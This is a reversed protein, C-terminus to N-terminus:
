SSIIVLTTHPKQFSTIPKGDQTELLGFFYKLYGCGSSISGWMAPHVVPHQPFGFTPRIDWSLYHENQDM